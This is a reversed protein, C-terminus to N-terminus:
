DRCGPCLQQPHDDNIYSGRCLPEACVAMENSRPQPSRHRRSTHEHVSHAPCDPMPAWPCTCHLVTAQTTAPQILAQM